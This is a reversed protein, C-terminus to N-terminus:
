VVSRPVAFENCAEGYYPSYLLLKKNKYKFFIKVQCIM